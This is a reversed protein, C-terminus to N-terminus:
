SKEAAEEAEWEAIQENLMELIKEEGVDSMVDAFDEMKQFISKRPEGNEDTSCALSCTNCNHTCEEPVTNINGNM